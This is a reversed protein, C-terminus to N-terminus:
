AALGPMAHPGCGCADDCALYVHLAHGCYFCTMDHSVSTHATPTDDVTDWM